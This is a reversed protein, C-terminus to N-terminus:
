FNFSLNSQQIKYISFSFVIVLGLDNLIHNVLVVVNTPRTLYYMQGELFTEYTM